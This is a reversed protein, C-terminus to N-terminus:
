CAHREALNVNFVRGPSCGCLSQESLRITLFGVGFGAPRRVPKAYTPIAAVCFQLGRQRSRLTSLVVESDTTPYSQDVCGILIEIEGKREIM